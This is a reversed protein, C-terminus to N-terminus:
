EDFPENRRINITTKHHIEGGSFVDNVNYKCRALEAFQIVHMAYQKGSTSYDIIALQIWACMLDLKSKRQHFFSADVELYVANIM